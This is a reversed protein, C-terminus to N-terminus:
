MAFFLFWDEAVMGFRFHYYIFVKQPSDKQEGALLTPKSAAGDEIALFKPTTLNKLWQSSRHRSKLQAVEIKWEKYKACAAEWANKLQEDNTDGEQAAASFNARISLHKGSGKPHGNILAFFGCSRESNQFWKVGKQAKCWSSVGVEPKLYPEDPEAKKLDSGYKVHDGYNRM